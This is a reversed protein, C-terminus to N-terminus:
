SPSPPAGDWADVVAVNFLRTYGCRQCLLAVSGQSKTQNTIAVHQPDDSALMTLFQNYIRPERADGCETCGEGVGMAILKTRYASMDPM